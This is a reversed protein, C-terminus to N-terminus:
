PVIKNTILAFPLYIYGSFDVACVNNGIGIQTNSVNYFNQKNKNLIM